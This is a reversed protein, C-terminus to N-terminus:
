GARCGSAGSFNFVFEGFIGTGSFHPLIGTKAAADPEPVDECLVTELSDQTVTNLAITAHHAYLLLQLRVSYVIHVDRYVLQRGGAATRM